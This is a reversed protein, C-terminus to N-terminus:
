EVPFGNLTAGVSTFTLCISNGVGNVDPFILDAAFAFETQRIAATLEANPIVGSIVGRQIALGNADISVQGLVVTDEINLDLEMGGLPVAIPFDGPGAQMEGGVSEAGGFVVRPSGDDNLSAMQVTYAGGEPTGTLLALDFMGNNGPPALGISTPMLNLSGDDLSEQLPGNAFGAALSLSNDAVGDGTVDRCGDGAPNASIALNTIRGSFIEGDVPPPVM